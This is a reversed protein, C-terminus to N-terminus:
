ILSTPYTDSKALPQPVLVRVKVLPTLTRQEVMLSDGVTLAQLCKAKRGSNVLNLGFNEFDPRRDRHFYTRKQKPDVAEDGTSGLDVWKSRPRADALCPRTAIERWIKADRGCCGLETFFLNAQIMRNSRGHLGFVSPSQRFVAPRLLRIKGGARSGCRLIIQNAM